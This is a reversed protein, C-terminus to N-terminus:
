QNIYKFYIFISILIVLFMIINEIILVNNNYINDNVAGLAGSNRNMINNFFQQSNILKDNVLELELQYIKNLNSNKQLLAELEAEYNYLNYLKKEVTSLYQNYRQARTDINDENNIYYIKGNSNISVDNYWAKKYGTYNNSLEKIDILLSNIDNNFNYSLSIDSVLNINSNKIENNIIPNLYFSYNGSLGYYIKDEQLKYCNDGNCEGINHIWKSINDTNAHPIGLICSADNFCADTLGTLIFFPSNNAMALTNCISYNGTIPKNLYNSCFDQITTNNYQYYNLTSSM